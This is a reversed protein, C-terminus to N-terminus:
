ADGRLTKLVGAIELVKLPLGSAGDVRFEKGAHRARNQAALLVGIGSADLLTVASLDVEVRRIGALALLGVLSAFLTDSTALDVTGLVAVGVVSGVPLAPRIEFYSGM